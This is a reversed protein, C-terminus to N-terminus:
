VANRDKFFIRLTKLFLIFDLWLSWNEIYAIDLKSEEEFSLGANGAVQAMGSMGPKLTFLRQHDKGYLEVEHPLHPRPGFLSMDGWLVNILQPLEDLRWRRIYTGVRTIRPDRRMKFLPGKRENASTRLEADKQYAQAGGYSSGVCYELFMSRFKIIEFPQKNRGVRVQRYFIPGRSDIVVVFATVAFVPSLIILLLISATVDFIRKAIRGWGELPTRSLELLPITGFQRYHVNVAHTEFLNPIYKYDIKYQEAFDLLVLNDADPLSSDTQIIEDIGREHYITELTEWRVIPVLGVVRFGLQPRKGFLSNLQESFKGNGALLVRHIGFGRGLLMRQIRRVVYRGFSVFIISFMYAAVVIFRSQFLEARFFIALIILMFGATVGTVIRGFEEFSKRTVALAYLGQLSFILVIVSTVVMVLKIYENLPLDLTFQVPRFEQVFTSVRIGYAAAGAALLALFDIPVLLAGFFLESRKM